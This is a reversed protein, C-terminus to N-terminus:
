RVRYKEIMDFNVDTVDFVFGAITLEGDRRGVVRGKDYFQRYSGDKHKIRYTTEYKKARGEMLDRMDQMIREYDDEHVLDTFHKYHYFKEDLRGLMKVKNPSFFVVGSPIEMWWWALGAADMAAEFKEFEKGDGYSMEPTTHSMQGYNVLAFIAWGM